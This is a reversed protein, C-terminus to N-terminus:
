SVLQGQGSGLDIIIKDITKNITERHFITGDGFRLIVNCDRYQCGEIKTEKELKGITTTLPSEIIYKMETNEAVLETRNGRIVEYPKKTTINMYANATKNWVKKTTYNYHVAINPKVVNKGERIWQVSGDEYIKIEDAIISPLFLIGLILFIIM